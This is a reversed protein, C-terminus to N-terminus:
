GIAQQQLEGVVERLAPGEAALADFCRDVSSFVLRVGPIADRHEEVWRVLRETPGGGHDGVGFFSMTHSCGPPLDQCAREIQWTGIGDNGNLYTGGIRFATVAAGGPRSRWTFTRGPLAMEQEQPRMFVYRDQGCARLIEPLAACHGFSDPNFGTRLPLPGFRQRAWACGEAINRRLGEATPFNCDPQTWWGNVVEWRGAAVHARIRAWLRPDCREIMAMPWTEGSTYFLGPHADLRDCASRATAMAEDIGSTWPWMWIPDFHAHFIAHVTITM